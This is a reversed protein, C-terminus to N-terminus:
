KAKGYHERILKALLSSRTFSALQEPTPPPANAIREREAAEDLVARWGDALTRIFECLVTV